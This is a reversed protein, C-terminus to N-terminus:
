GNIIPLTLLDACTRCLYTPHEASLVEQPFMGWLAAVTTAGAGNGAQIDHPSDGVYVCRHPDVGLMRAGQIIPAPDPKHVPCDDAGVLCEFYPALGTIELGHWALEHRKATVVGLKFGADRLSRLTQAMGPFASVMSDHIRHNHERYTRCLQDHLEPDDTYDWLQVDLPQGVKGMLVSDPPIEGFHRDITYRMSTLILQYTDVLTGDNDFLIAEPRQMEAM